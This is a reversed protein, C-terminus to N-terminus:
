AADAEGTAAQMIARETAEARSLEAGIRGEHLVYVRDSVALVEPLESSIMLIGVGRGALEGIIHHIDAKAGVDVGRTPEDLILVQPDIALWKGLVVKQQNGGSLTDARREPRAPSVGLRDVYDSALKKEARGDIWGGKAIRTLMALSINEKITLAPVIGHQKRDEPVYAIASSVGDRPSRVKVPEGNVLIQGRDARDLGFLARAVETRGSGVLGALAVIEGKRVTLDVDQFAGRRSLGRVELVQEGVTVDAKPFVDALERGVMLRIMEQATLGEVPRSDVYRGDRLVTVQDAIELVERLRHSIYIVGIGRDRMRRVVRFLVQAEHESLSSTPEDLVIIRPRAAYVKCIEVLQQQSVSLSGVRQWWQINAELDGLVEEAVERMAKRDVMGFKRPMRGLSINEAVTLDAVLNLEQYVMGIGLRKADRPTSLRVERGDVEVTGSDQSHVGALIKMLTSKGAGNEGVIAHVQGEEVSLHVDTLAKIGPFSKSIDRMVLVPGKHTV